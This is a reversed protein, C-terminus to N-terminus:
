RWRRPLIEPRAFSGRDLDAPRRRAARPSLRDARRDRLGQARRSPPDAIGEAAPRRPRCPDRRAARSHQARANSVRNKVHRREAPPSPFGVVDDDRPLAAVFRDLSLGTLRTQIAEDSRERAIVASAIVLWRM